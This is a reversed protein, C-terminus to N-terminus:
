FLDSIDGTSKNNQYEVDFDNQEYAINEIQLNQLRKIENQKKIEKHSFPLQNQIIGLTYGWGKSHFHEKIAKEKEKIAHLLVPWSYGNHIMSEFKTFISNGEVKPADLMEWLTDYFEKRQLVPKRCKKHARNITKNDKGSFWEELEDPNDIYQKCYKCKYIKEKKEKKEKVM